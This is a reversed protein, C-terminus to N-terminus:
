KKKEILFFANTSSSRFRFFSFSFEILFIPKTTAKPNLNQHSQRYAIHFLRMAFFFGDFSSSSHLFSLFVGSSERILIRSLFSYLLLAAILIVIAAPYGLRNSMRRTLISIFNNIKKRNAFNYQSFLM